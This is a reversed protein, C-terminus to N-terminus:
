IQRGVALNAGDDYTGPCDVFRLTALAPYDRLMARFAAPTTDDTVDVVAATRPDLVRFPGYTALSKAEAQVVTPAVLREAPEAAAPVASMAALLALVPWRM